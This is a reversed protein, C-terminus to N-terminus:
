LNKLYRYYYYVLTIFYQLNAFFLTITAGYLNFSPILIIALTINTVGSIMAANRISKSLGKSALFRNLVDGLGVLVSGISIIRAYLIADNYEYGFLIPVIYILVINFIILLLTSTAITFLVAKKSLKDEERFKKYFVSGLSSILPGLPMAIMLALAYPAYLAGTTYNRVVINVVYTSAVSILSGLYVPIGINRNVEKVYNIDDSNAIFSFKYKKILYFPYVLNGIAFIFLAISLTVDLGLSHFIFILIIQIIKTFLNKIAINKIDNLGMLIYDFFYQIIVAYSYFYFLVWILSIDPNIFYIYSLYILLFPIFLLIMFKVLIVNGSSVIDRIRNKEIDPDSILYAVTFPIGLVVFIQVLQLINTIFRYNGFDEIEMYNTFLKLVLFNLIIAAFNSTILQIYQKLHKNNKIM